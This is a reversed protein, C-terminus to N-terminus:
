MGISIMMKRANELTGLMEGAKEGPRGGAGLVEL